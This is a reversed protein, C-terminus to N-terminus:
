FIDAWSLPKYQRFLISTMLNVASHGPSGEQFILLASMSVLHVKLRCDTRSLPVSRNLSIQIKLNSQPENPSTRVRRRHLIKYKPLDTELQRTKVSVVFIEPPRSDERHVLCTFSGTATALVLSLQYIYSDDSTHTWPSFTPTIALPVAPPLSGTTSKKAISKTM